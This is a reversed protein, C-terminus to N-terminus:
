RSRVLFRAAFMGLVALALATMPVSRPLDILPVVLVLVALVAGSGATTRALESTEEFSGLEHGVAYPGYLWGLVVQVALVVASGVLLPMWYDHTITFDLRLWLAVVLSGVWISADVVTWLVRTRLGTTSSGTMGAESQVDDGRCPSWM